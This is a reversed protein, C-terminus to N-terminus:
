SRLYADVVPGWVHRGKYRATDEPWALLADACAEGLGEAKLEPLSYMYTRISFGLYQTVPLRFLVQRELRVFVKNFDITDPNIEENAELNGSSFLDTKEGFMVGYTVRQTFNGVAIKHFYRNMSMKLKEHYGPVPDHIDTLKLGVKSAWEFGLGALGTSGELRYEEVDPDYRLVMIDEEVTLALQHMCEQASMSSNSFRPQKTGLITNVVFAGEPVFYQPFRQVLSDIALDYIEHVALDTTPSNRVMITKDPHEAMIKKHNQIAAAYDNDLKLWEQRNTRTVSMTLHYTPKFPRYKHPTETAWDFKESVPEIKPWQYKAAFRSKPASNKAHTIKIAAAFLAVLLAILAASTLDLSEIFEM